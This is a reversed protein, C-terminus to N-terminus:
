CYFLSNKIKDNLKVLKNLQSIVHREFEEQNEAPIHKSAHQAELHMKSRYACLDAYRVPIPMAIPGGRYRTCNHCLYFCIKQLDDMSMQRREYDNHLVVYKLPRSTGLPSFHSNIFFMCYTPDIITHDVVTGSPVNHLPRDPPGSPQTLAFRTQHGKQTVIYVMKGVKTRRRIATRIQNIENEAYKFQGESVGDRFVIFNEPLYKNRKEYEDLLENMMEDLTSIMEEKELKQVRVSASYCTFEHDYSGIACSISSQVKECDGPHNVDVGIAMTKKHDISLSQLDENEIYSNKGCIKGNVKLLINETYGRNRRKAKSVLMCQTVIGFKQDGFHKVANYLFPIPPLAIFLLNIDPLNTLINAFVNKVVDLNRNDIPVVQKEMCNSLDMGFRRGTQKLESVMNDVDRNNFKEDFSFFAWKTPRVSAFRDNRGGGRIRPSDLVRGMFRVPKPLLEAGFHNMKEQNIDAIEHSLRSLHNFYVVPKHTAVRLLENQVISDMKSNNLFQKEFMYCLELPITLERKGAMKVLPYKKSIINYKMVFYEHVSVPTEEDSGNKKMMFTQEHPRCQSLSKIVYKAKHGGHTTYVELGRIIKSVSEIESPNLHQPDRGDAIMAVAQLLTEAELSIMCSTKLHLNLSPGMETIHVASSFGQVFKIWSKPGRFVGSKIDFLNRRHQHFKELSINQILIELFNIAVRPVDSTRGAYFEVIGSLDIKQVNALKAVFKKTKGGIDADFSKILGRVDIEETTYINKGNDYVYRDFDFNEANLLVFKTVLQLANRSFYKQKRENDANIEAREDEDKFNFDINYQYVITPQVNVRMYNALLEIKRGKVGREVENPMVIPYEQTEPYSSFSKPAMRDGGPGGSLGGRGSGRDSNGRGASREGFGSREHDGGRDGYGSRGRDGSRDGFGSGRGASREGYGSRERDGEDSGRRASQEGYGSRERDGGRDGFGSGRGASREGYESRERDGGRDGFGSGRGASREGYSSPDREEGRSSRSEDDRRSSSQYEDKQERSSVSPRRTTRLEHTTQGSREQISLESIQSRIEEEQKPQEIESQERQQQHSSGFSSAMGRFGSRARSRGRSSM